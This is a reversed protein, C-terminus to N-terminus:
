IKVKVWNDERQKTNRKLYIKINKTEKDPIKTIKM